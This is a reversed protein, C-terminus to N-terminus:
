INDFINGSAVPIEYQLVDKSPCKFENDFVISSSETIGTVVHGNVIDGPLVCANRFHYVSCYIKNTLSSNVICPILVRRKVVTSAPNLPFVEDNQNKVYIENDHTGLVTFYSGNVSVVDGPFFNIFDQINISLELTKRLYQVQIIAPAFMKAVLVVDKHDVIEMGCDLSIMDEAEFVCGTESMGYYTAYRKNPLLVLDGPSFPNISTINIELETYNCLKVKRKQNIRNGKSDLAGSSRIIEFSEDLSLTSQEGSPLTIVVSHNRLESIRAVGKSLTFVIDGIESQYFQHFDPIKSIQLTLLNYKFPVIGSDFQVWYRNLRVGLLTGNGYQPHQINSGHVFMNDPFNWNSVDIQITHNKFVFDKLISGKRYELKWEYLISKKSKINSFYIQEKRMLCLMDNYIGVVNYAKSKRSIKDGFKLDYKDLEKTTIQYIELKDDVCNIVSPAESTFDIRTPVVTNIGITEYMSCRLFNFNSGEYDLKLDFFNFYETNRGDSKVGIFTRTGQILKPYVNPRIFFSEQKLQYDDEEYVLLEFAGNDMLLLITDGSTFVRYVRRGFYIGSFSFPFTQFRLYFADNFTVIVGNSLLILFNKHIAQVDKVICENFDCYRYGKQKNGFSHVEVINDYAVAISDQKLSICKVKISQDLTLVLDFEDKPSKTGKYITNNNFLVIFSRKYVSTLVPIIDDEPLPFEVLKLITDERCIILRGKDSIFLSLNRDDSVHIPSGLDSM